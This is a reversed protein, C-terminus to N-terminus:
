SIWRLAYGEIVWGDTTGQLWVLIGSAEFSGRYTSVEVLANASDSAFIVPGVGVWATPSIREILRGWRSYARNHRRFDDLSGRESSVRTAITTPLPRSQFSGAAFAEALLPPLSPMEEKLWERSRGAEDPGPNQEQIQELLMISTPRGHVLRVTDRGWPSFLAADIVASYVAVEGGGQFPPPGDAACAGLFIV